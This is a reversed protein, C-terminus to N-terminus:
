EKEGATGGDSPNDSGTVPELMDSSWCWMFERGRCNVLTCQCNNIIANIIHTQGKYQEMGATFMVGGYRKGIELDLKVKAKDKVKYDM